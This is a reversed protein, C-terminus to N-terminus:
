PTFINRTTRSPAVWRRPLHLSEGMKEGLLLQVLSHLHKKNDPKSRGRAQAFRLVRRIEHSITAISALTCANRTIPVLTVRRPIRTFEALNKINKTYIQQFASALIRGKPDTHSWATDKSIRSSPPRWQLYTVHMRWDSRPLWRRSSNRYLSHALAPLPLWSCTFWARGILACQKEGVLRVQVGQLQTHAVSM